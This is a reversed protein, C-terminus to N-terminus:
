IYTNFSDIFGYGLSCDLLSYIDDMTKESDDYQIRVSFPNIGFRVDDIIDNDRLGVLMDIIEFQTQTSIDQSFYILIECFM